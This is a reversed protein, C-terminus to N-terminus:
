LTASGATARIREVVQKLSLLSHDIDTQTLNIGFSIRLASMADQHGYGMASLVHSPVTEAAHCASGTSVSIGMLDLGDAITDGRMEPILVCLTEPLTPASSVPLIKFPLKTIGQEWYERLKVMHERGTSTLENRMCEEAAAAMAAAGAVNQTGARVGGEHSGGIILPYLSLGKRVRLAGIGRPGGFKHASIALLDADIPPLALKGATQVADVLLLANHNRLVEAVDAVPQIVGTENNAHQICVLKTEPRLEKALDAPCIQGNPQPKILTICAGGRELRELLGLVASHEIESAIIHTNELSNNLSGLVAVIISETGGSTFVVDYNEGLFRSIIQRSKELLDSHLRGDSHVSSPNGPHCHASNWADQASKKLPASAAYDLYLRHNNVSIVM